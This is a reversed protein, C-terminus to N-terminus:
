WSLQLLNNKREIDALRKTPDIEVEKLDTLRRKFEVVYTPHTWLWEEHVTRSTPNEAPKEGFMLNVPVYHIETTSDKFRLELDIPMPMQGVRRLRIKSVGNEEWLSDIGYDVTKVTYMMFENYWHLQMGSIKEAIRIFDNPTPHKFRWAEYYELLIKSLNEEGVIYGLQRLYVAGKYYANINYAYNSNFYNAPTSMPEDLRGTALRFYNSYEPASAFFDQKHLWALIRAEAYDTFGEDMWAYLNENTGLMMQYWSHCWEHVATELSGSKILTAMSDETGGGGGQL